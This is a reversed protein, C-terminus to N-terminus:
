GRAALLLDGPSAAVLATVLPLTYSVGFGVNTPRYRESVDRRAVFSYSLQVADLIDARDYHLQLGPSVENM